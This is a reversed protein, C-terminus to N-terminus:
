EGVEILEIWVRNGAVTATLDRASKGTIRLDFETKEDRRNLPAVRLDIYEPPDQDEQVAEYAMHADLGSAMYPKLPESLQAGPRFQCEMRAMKKPPESKSFIQNDRLYLELRM